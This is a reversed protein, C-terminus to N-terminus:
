GGQKLPFWCGEKTRSGEQPYWAGRGMRKSTTPAKLDLWIKPLNKARELGEEREKGTAVRDVLKGGHPQQPYNAFAAEDLAFDKNTMSQRRLDKTRVTTRRGVSKTCLIHM